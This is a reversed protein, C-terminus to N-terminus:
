DAPQFICIVPRCPVLLVFGSGVCCWLCIAQLVVGARVYAVETGDREDAGWEIDTKKNKFTRIWKVDKKKQDAATTQKEKEM